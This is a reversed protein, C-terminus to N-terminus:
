VPFLSSTGMQSDKVAEQRQGEMNKDRELREGVHRKWEREKSELM